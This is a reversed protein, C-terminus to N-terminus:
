ELHRYDKRVFIDYDVCLCPRNDETLLATLIIPLKGSQTDDINWGVNNGMPAPRLQPSDIAEYFENLSIFMDSVIDYSCKAIAQQIKQANSYFFKGSYLDKCLVMGDMPVISQIDGLKTENNKDEYFKDKMISDKIARTKKEGLMEEMKVNLNKITKESLNCAATLALIKKNASSHAGLICGVTFVGFAIPPFLVPAMSKVMEGTVARKSEKDDPDCDKIDERYIKLIEDAKLGAKYASFMTSIVGAIASGVLLKPMERITFAKASGILNLIKGSKM